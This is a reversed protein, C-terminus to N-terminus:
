PHLKSIGRENGRQWARLYFWKVGLAGRQLTLLVVDGRQIPEYTFRSVPLYSSEARPGWPGIELNYTTRKGTQTHKGEVVASYSTGPSHDLVTNMEITAGYGYALCFAFLAAANIKRARVTPDVANAALALVGGLAVYLAVAVPSQFVQYDIVSRLLLILGPFIFAIGVSPHADSRNRDIRFLGGSRRVTETAVWPLAALLVVIPVYPYPYVAGWLCVVTSVITLLRALRNGRALAELRDTPTQGLRPANEIEVMSAEADDVDLCRMTDLWQMFEADVHFVLAVKVARRHRDIPEFQFSLPSTPLSRWGRIEDRGLVVTHTLEEVVIRDPFLVVRSRLTSLLCYVGLLCLALFLGVLWIRSGPKGLHGIASFWTGFSGGAALIIGTLVLAIRWFGSARYVRPYTASDALAISKHMEPSERLVCGQATSSQHSESARSIVLPLLLLLM